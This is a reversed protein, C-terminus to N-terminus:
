EPALQAIVQDLVQKVTGSREEKRWDSISARLSPDVEQETRQCFKVYSTTAEARGRRIAEVSLDIECTLLEGALAALLGHMERLHHAQSKDESTWASLHTFLLGLEEYMSIQVNKGGLKMARRINSKVEAM